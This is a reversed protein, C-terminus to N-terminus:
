AVSPAEQISLEGAGVQRMIELARKAPDLPVPQNGIYGSM